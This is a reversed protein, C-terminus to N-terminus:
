SVRVPEILQGRGIARAVRYRRYAPGCIAAARAPLDIIRIEATHLEAQVKQSDSGFVRLPVRLRISAVQNFFFPRSM